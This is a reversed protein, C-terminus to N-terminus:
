RPGSNSRPYVEWYQREGTILGHEDTV